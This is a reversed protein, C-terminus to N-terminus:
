VFNTLMKQPCSSVCVTNTLLIDEINAFIVKIAKEDLMPLLKAYFIQHLINLCASMLLSMLYVEVILQLDRVYAGETAILEFIAEQRKREKPPIEELASKDIL